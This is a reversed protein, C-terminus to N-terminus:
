RWPENTRKPSHAWALDRAKILSNTTRMSIRPLRSGSVKLGFGLVRCKSVRLRISKDIRDKEPHLDGPQWTPDQNEAGRLLLGISIM